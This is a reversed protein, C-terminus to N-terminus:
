DMSDLIGGRHPAVCLRDLVRHRFFRESTPNSPVTPPSYGHILVPALHATRRAVSFVGILALFIVAGWLIRRVRIGPKLSEM